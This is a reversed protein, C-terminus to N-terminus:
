KGICFRSFIADLVHEADIRGVIRALADAAQRLDEARLETEAAPGAAFRDLAALCAELGAGHRERSPPPATGAGLRREVEAAIRRALEDLGAGTLASVPVEGLDGPPGPSRAALPEPLADIKNVVRLISAGAAAPEGPPAFGTGSSTPGTPGPEALRSGIPWGAEAPVTLAPPPEPGITGLSSMRADPGPPATADCVWLVLDAARARAVARRIGEEEVRGAAARLGATDALVVAHGGLDLRVELVDRTTGPEESVIAVERRALANMLSSKGVNPAGALVVRFGERVIEGRNAEALHAAIGARLAAARATAEAVADAAVDGEDAFDIAAEILARAEILASRWGDYIRALGGSAQALAQRRQAETEADILDALGEAATLDLRGNEFARRAFEGPEAPRCGPILALAALVARIVAASGHVQLEAMDEGTETGPGPLWLVLAEDLIDATGPHRLRRFAARRPQPRPAAMADLAAGAAPGAIRIVAVGARGRGSSLAFITSAPPM